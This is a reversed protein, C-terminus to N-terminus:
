RGLARAALRRYRLCTLAPLPKGKMATLAVRRLTSSHGAGGLFDEAQAFERLCRLTFYTGSRGTGVAFIADV